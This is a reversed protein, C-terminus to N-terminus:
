VQLSIAEKSPKSISRIIYRASIINVLIAPYVGLYVLSRGISADPILMGVVDLAVTLSLAILFLTVINRGGSTKRILEGKTAVSVISSIGLVYSEM